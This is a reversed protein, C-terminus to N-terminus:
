KLQKTKSLKQIDKNFERQYIKKNLGEKEIELKKIQKLTIARKNQSREIVRQGTKHAQKDREKQLKQQEKMHLYYLIAGVTIILGTQKNFM